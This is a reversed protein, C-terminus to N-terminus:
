RDSRAVAKRTVTMLVAGLASKVVSGAIFPVIGVLWAKGASLHIAAVLWAFGFGLAIIHALMVSLFFRPASADWGREGIWGCVYAAVVFGIIYGGTPGAMYALGGVPGAFVPLGLAGEAAYALVTAAGLRSGYIAGILPVVLSQMTMPVYPLPVNIKASLVLLATGVAILVVARFAAQLNTSHAPWLIRATPLYPHAAASPTLQIKPM